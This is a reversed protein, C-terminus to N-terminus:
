SLHMPHSRNALFSTITQCCNGQLRRNVQLLNLLEGLVLALAWVDAPKTDYAKCEEQEPALYWITGPWDYV